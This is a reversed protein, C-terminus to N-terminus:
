NGLLKIVYLLREGQFITQEVRGIKYTVDLLTIEDDTTPPTDFSDGAALVKIDTEGAVGNGIEHASYSDPLVKVTTETVVDVSASGIVRAGYAISRFTATTGFETIADLIVPQLDTAISM